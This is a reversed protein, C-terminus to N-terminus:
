YIYRENTRGNNNTNYIIEEEEQRKKKRNAIDLEQQQEGGRNILQEVHKELINFKGIVYCLALLLSRGDTNQNKYLNDIFNKPIRSIIAFASGLVLALLPSGILISGFAM